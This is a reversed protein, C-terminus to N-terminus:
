VDPVCLPLFSLSVERNDLMKKDMELRAAEADEKEYYRVFRARFCHHTLHSGSRFRLHVSDPQCTRMVAVPAM